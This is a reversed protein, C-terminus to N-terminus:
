GEHRTGTERQGGGKQGHSPSEFWRPTSQLHVEFLM